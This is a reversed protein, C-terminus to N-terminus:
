KLMEKEKENFSPKINMNKCEYNTDEVKWNWDEANSMEIIEKDSMALGVKSTYRPEENSIRYSIDHYDIAGSEALAEIQETLIEVFDKIRKADKEDSGFGNGGIEFRIKCKM